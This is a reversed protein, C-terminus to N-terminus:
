RERSDFMKEMRGVRSIKWVLRTIVINGFNRWKEMVGGDFVVMMIIAIMTMKEEIWM